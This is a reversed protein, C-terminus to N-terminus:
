LFFYSLSQCHKHVAGLQAVLVFSCCHQPAWPAPTARAGDGSHRHSEEGAGAPVPPEPGPKSILSPKQGHCLHMRPQWRGRHHCPHLHQTLAGTTDLSILRAPKKNFNPRGLYITLTPTFWPNGDPKRHPDGNGFPMSYEESNRSPSQPSQFCQCLFQFLLLSPILFVVKASSPKDELKGKALQIAYKASASM